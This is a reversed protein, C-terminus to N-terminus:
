KPREVSSGPTGWAGAERGSRGCFLAGPMGVQGPPDLRPRHDRSIGVEPISLAMSPRQFM